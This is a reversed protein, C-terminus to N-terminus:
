WGPLKVYANITGGTIASCNLALWVTNFKGVSKWAVGPLLNVTSVTALGGITAGTQVQVTASTGGTQVIFLEYPQFHLSKMAGGVEIFSGQGIAQSLGTASQNLFLAFSKSAM